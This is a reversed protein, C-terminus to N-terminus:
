DEMLKSIDNFFEENNLNKMFLEGILLANVGLSKLYKIDEMSSIGSESIIIRDRPINKILRETTKINVKFTKLDRNNIGIVRCGFNLAIELEEENHVEVLPTLFVNLAENYFEQLRDKLVAVILLIGTAGLVKTEYVQYIDAVFDKRLVQKDYIEIVEKVYKDHGFFYDEETIISFATVKAKKYIEAIKNVSFDKNIIGKSPSAKKFEGIISFSRNKLVDLFSETIETREKAAIEYARGRMYGLSLKGKRKEVREMKKSVIEDLIM